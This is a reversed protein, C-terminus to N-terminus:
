NAATIHQVRRFAEEEANASFGKVRVSSGDVSGPSPEGFTVLEAAIWARDGNPAFVRYWEGQRAEVMLRSGRKLSMLASHNRGPGLRLDAKDVSITAVQLDADASPPRVDVPAPAPVRRVEQRTPAPQSARSPLPLNYKGLSARAKSDVIASLRNVETEAVSLQSRSEDLQKELLEIRGQASSLQQKLSQNSTELSSIAAMLDSGGVKPQMVADGNGTKSSESIGDSRRHSLAAKEDSQINSVTKKPATSAEPATTNERQATNEGSNVPEATVGSLAQLLSREADILRKERQVGVHASALSAPSAEAMASSGMLAVSIALLLLLGSVRGKNVKLQRKLVM